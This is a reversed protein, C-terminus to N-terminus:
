RLFCLWYRYFIIVIYVKCRHIPALKNPDLGKTFKKKDEIKKKKEQLEVEERRWESLHFLFREIPISMLFFFILNLGFTPYTIIEPFLKDLSSLGITSLLFFIGFFSGISGIIIFLSWFTHSFSGNLITMNCFIVVAGYAFTGETWLDGTIGTKSSYNWNFTM